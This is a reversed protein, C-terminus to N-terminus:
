DDIGLRRLTEATPIGDEDWGRRHYYEDLMRDLEEPPCRRGKSPGDPIPEHLVRHPLRDCARSVGQRANVAREATYVREGVEELEAATVDWGTVANLTQVLDGSVGAGFGKEITFRCMILSDGIATFNQSKINLEVQGEFGPDANGPVYVPRTDHHSGGRTSTAYGLGMNRLGRASHGPIELGKVAYLCTEAEGGFAAALRASGEALYAGIGDRLATQRILADLPNDNGFAVRGGLDAETVIGKELCEAVFALTVGMSITDLGMEDCMANGECISVLNGNDLMPGMAYLTEFEPMKVTQETEGAALKLNKGCAVPCGYCATNRAFYKEKMLEGSIAEAQDFTERTNNRTCLTGRGNTMQVLFPTGLTTLVKANELLTKRHQRLMTKLAEPDACATRASGFVVVAKLQKAGMVAGLGGRGATGLRKGSAAINAFVVGNEGAPGICLCEAKPGHREKLAAITEGTALGWLDDAGHLSCGEETVLLYTPGAAAGTVVIADYGARKQVVAYDGGYNSDAFFGTQPSIGAIHGRSTGWVPTDTLPGVTFVLPNAPSLPEIREPGARRIREVALGNGGVYRRAVAPGLPETALSGSSLDVNLIKGAHGFM